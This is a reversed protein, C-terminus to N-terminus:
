DEEGAEADKKPPLPFLVSVGATQADYDPRRARKRELMMPVSIFVFLATMALPGIILWWMSPMAAVGFLYLGWWFAIEGFYNPHQSWAWLGEDCVRVEEGEEAQRAAFERLQDDAAAEIMIAGATVFMALFDLPGFPNDSLTVAWLPLAALFVLVTPLMQIGFLDVLPYLRGTKTRLDKYRFDEQGLHDWRRFCNLTLRAAWVFVLFLAIAERVEIVAESAAQGMWFLMLIPPVVSWYPDYVSSNYVLRAVAFIVFTAAIDAMLAQWVPHWGELLDVALWAVSFALGYAIVCVLIPSFGWGKWGDPRAATSDSM